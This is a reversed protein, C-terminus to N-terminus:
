NTDFATDPASHSLDQRCCCCNRWLSQTATFRRLQRNQVALTALAEGPLLMLVNSVVHDPMDDLLVAETGPIM